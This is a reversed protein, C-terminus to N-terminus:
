RDLSRQLLALGSHRSLCARDRGDACAPPLAKGSAAGRQRRQLGPQFVNDDGALMVIAKPHGPVYKVFFRSFQRAIIDTPTGADASVVLTLVKGRYFDEVSQSSASSAFATAALGFLAACARIATRYNM